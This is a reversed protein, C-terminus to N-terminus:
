EKVSKVAWKKPNWHIRFVLQSMWDTSLVPNKCKRNSPLWQPILRIM